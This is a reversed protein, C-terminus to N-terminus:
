MFISFENKTKICVRIQMGDFIIELASTWFHLRTHLQVSFLYHFDANFAFLYRPQSLQYDAIIIDTALFGTLQDIFKNRFIKEKTLVFRKLFSLYM